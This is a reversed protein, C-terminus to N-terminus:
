LFATNGYINHTQKLDLNMAAVLCWKIFLNWLFDKRCFISPFSTWYCFMPTLCITIKNKLESFNSVRILIPVANKYLLLLNFYWNSAAPYLQNYIVESLLQRSQCFYLNLIFSSSIFHVPKILFYIMSFIHTQM